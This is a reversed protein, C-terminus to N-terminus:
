FSQPCFRGLVPEGNAFTAESVRASGLIVSEHPASASPGYQNIYSVKFSEDALGAV